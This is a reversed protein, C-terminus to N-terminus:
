DAFVLIPERLAASVDSLFRAAVVPDIHDACTLGLTITTAPQAVGNVMRVADRPQGIALAAATDELTPVAATVATGAFCSLAFTPETVAETTGYAVAEALDSLTASEVQELEVMREDAILQVSVTISETPEYDDIVSANLVSSEVLAPALLRVVLAALPIPQERYHRLRDQVRLLADAAIEAQLSFTVPETVIVEVEDIDLPLEIEIADDIPRRPETEIITDDDIQPAPTATAAEDDGVDQGDDTADAGGDDDSGGEASRTPTSEDESVGQEDDTADEGDGSQAAGQEDDTTTDGGGSQAAGQEDDAMQKEDGATAGETDGVTAAPDAEADTASDADAEDGDVTAAPHAEVASPEDTGADDGTDDTTEADGPSAEASEAAAQAGDDEATTSGDTAPATTDPDDTTAATGEGAAAGSEEADEVAGTSTSAADHDLNPGFAAQQVDARTVRGGPGTGRIADLDVEFEEALRRVLPSYSRQQDSDDTPVDSEM